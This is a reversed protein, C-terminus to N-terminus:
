GGMSLRPNFDLVQQMNQYVAKAQETNAPPLVVQLVVFFDGPTRTPLGRGALRLKGGQRSNPPIKLDVHGEPTPVKIKAGLAAEWPTVPLDLYVDSEAVRYLPHTNFAIELFLDGAQGNGLGPNGQEALKIHQGPKIGKPIKVNLSRHKVQVQGQANMEPASLSINRTAGHYSDELDIHIKAHSDQGRLHEGHHRHGTGASRFGEAGGFLQEFFDSFDGADGGTFGGGKFEFGEDWNPPPRFDQGSKWNEGLQNYAARKEPDKLVEYAEGLEKFKAEADAEKSVDPHYKRALKRYARKIEDQSADRALEMIKYYDKYQM